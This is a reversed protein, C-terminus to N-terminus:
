GVLPLGHDLVSFFYSDHRLFGDSSLSSVAEGQPLHNMLTFMIAVLVFACICSVTFGFAEARALSVGANRLIAKQVAADEEAGSETVYWTRGEEVVATSRIQRLLRCCLPPSTFDCSLVGPTEM